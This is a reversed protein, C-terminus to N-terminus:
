HEPDVLDGVSDLTENNLASLAHRITQRPAPLELNPLELLEVRVAHWGSRDERDFSDLITIADNLSARYSDFALMRIDRRARELSRLLRLFDAQELNVDNDRSIPEDIRRIRYVDRVGDTLDRWFSQSEPPEAVSFTSDPETATRNTTGESMLSVAFTSIDDIRMRISEVDLSRLQEIEVLAQELPLIVTQSMHSASAIALARQLSGTVLDLDVGSVVFALAVNLEIRVAGVPDPEAFTGRAAITIPVDVDESGSVDQIDVTDLTPEDLGDPAEPRSLETPELVEQDAQLTDEQDFPTEQATEGEVYGDIFTRIPQHWKMTAITVGTLAVILVVSVLWRTGVGKPETENGVNSAQTDTM